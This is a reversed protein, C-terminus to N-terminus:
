MIIMLMCLMGILEENKIIYADNKITSLDDRLYVGNFKSENEYYKHIGFNTLPHPPM